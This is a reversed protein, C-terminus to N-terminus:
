AAVPSMHVLAMCAAQQGSAASADALMADPGVWDGAVYVGPLGLADVPPRTWRLGGRAVPAGHAVVLRHLYREHVIDDDDIGAVQALARLEHRSADHDLQVRNAGMEHYRLVSVLGSRNPALRAAPAHASLYLPRDLGLAVTPVERRLALDLVSVEVPPTLGDRGALSSGTLREAVDPGGAAIVVASAVYTADGTHVELAGSTPHIANVAAHDVVVGGLERLRAVLGQMISGWGKDVYLVGGNLALQLQALAAGADLREPGNSYTSLRIFTHVFQGVCEREDALWDNVSRGAVSAPKTRQMQTLRRALRMRDLRGLLPMSLIGRPTFSMPQLRGDRWLQTKLPPPNGAVPISHHRLLQAFAGQQYLAHPGVNFLFGEQEVTKARGGVDNGELVVVRAGASAATIAASMGAVGAGVVVADASSPRAAVTGMTNV